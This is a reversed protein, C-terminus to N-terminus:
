HKELAQEGKVIDIDKSYFAERTVDREHEKGEKREIAENEEMPKTPTVRM